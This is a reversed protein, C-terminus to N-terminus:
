KSDDWWEGTRTNVPTNQTTVHQEYKFWPFVLFPQYITWSFITLTLMLAQAWCHSLATGATWAGPGLSSSVVSLYTSYLFPCSFWGRPDVWLPSRHHESGLTIEPVSPSHACLNYTALVAWFLYLSYKKSTTHYSVHCVVTVKWPSSHSGPTYRIYKLIYSKLLLEHCHDSTIGNSQSVVNHNQKGDLSDCYTSFISNPAHFYLTNDCASLSISHWDWYFDGCLPSFM